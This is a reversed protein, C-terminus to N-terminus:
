DIVEHVSAHDSGSKGEGLEIFNRYNYRSQSDPYQGMWISGSRSDFHRQSQTQSQNSQQPKRLIHRFFPKLVPMCGCILGTNIEVVSHHLTLVRQFPHTLSPFSPPITVHPSLDKRRALRHRPRQSEPSLPRLTRNNGRLQQSSTLIRAQLTQVPHHAYAIGSMFVLVLGVKEKRTLRLQYVMPLPLLFLLVDSVVNMSGYAYDAQTLVICHGPIEPKWYKSIPTCGFILTIINSSLYGAVFFLVAWTAYRFPQSVGFLRLYMLLLAVRYGLISCLYM